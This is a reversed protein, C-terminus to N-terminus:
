YDKVDTTKSIGGVRCAVRAITTQIVTMRWQAGPLFKHSIGKTESFIGYDGIEFDDVQTWADASAARGYLRFLTGAAGKAIAFKFDTLDHRDGAPVTVASILEAETLSGTSSRGSKSITGAPNELGVTMTMM